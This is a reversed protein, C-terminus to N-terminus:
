FKHNWEARSYRERVLQAIAHCPIEIAAQRAHWAECLAARVTESDLPLNRVFERHPRGARYDPQHTPMPLLRDLLALDFNLLFTGHFLLFRRRRRQANGSFKVRGLALDTHGLVEVRRGMEPLAGRRPQSAAPAHAELADEVAQRHTNMVWRNTSSVNATPGAEDIPLILSYNLCGPGQVVTGGGSCRRFVAVGADACAAVNVETAVRNAYGVVVFHQAPEWFRLMAGAAEPATECTELLAEDCALNEAPTPLTLNLCIM